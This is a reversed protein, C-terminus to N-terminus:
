LYSVIGENLKKYIYIYINIIELCIQLYEDDLIILREMAEAMKSTLGVSKLNLGSAALSLWKM